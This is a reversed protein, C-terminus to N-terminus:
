CQKRQRVEDDWTPLAEVNRFAGEDILNKLGRACDGKIVRVHATETERIQLAEDPFTATATAARASAARWPVQKDALPM